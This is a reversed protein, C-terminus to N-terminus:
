RPSTLQWRLVRAPYNLFIWIQDGNESAKKQKKKFSRLREHKTSFLIEHQNITPIRVRQAGNNKMNIRQSLIKECYM